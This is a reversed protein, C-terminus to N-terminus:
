HVKIFPASHPTSSMAYLVCESILTDRERANLEGFISLMEMGLFKSYIWSDTQTKLGAFLQYKTMKIGTAYPSKWLMNYYFWFDELFSDSMKKPNKVDEAIVDSESVSFIEKGEITKHKHPFTREIIAMLPGRGVKGYNAQAGKVEGQWNRAQSSFSRFQVQGKGGNEYNVYVDKNDWFSGVSMRASKYKINYHEKGPMNFIEIKPNKPNQKLSVGIIDRSIYSEIFLKNAKAFNDINNFKEMSGTSTTMWIDAPTYKNINSFYRNSEKNWIKYGDDVRGVWSSAKHFTYKKGKYKKHLLNAGLILAKWWRENLTFVKDVAAKGLDLDCQTYANDLIKKTDGNLGNLTMDAIIHDIDLDKTANWRAACFLCQGCEAIDTLKSGAGSITAM